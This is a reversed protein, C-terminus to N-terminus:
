KVRKFGEDFTKSDLSMIIENKLYISVELDSRQIRYLQSPSIEELGQERRAQNIVRFLFSNPRFEGDDFKIQAKKKKSM